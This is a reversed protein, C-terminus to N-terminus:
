SPVSITPRVCSVEMEKSVALVSSVDHVSPTNTRHLALPLRPHGHPVPQHLLTHVGGLTLSRLCRGQIGHAALLADQLTRSRSSSGGGRSSRAALHPQMAAACSLLM